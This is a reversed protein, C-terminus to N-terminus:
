ATESPSKHADNKLAFYSKVSSKMADIVTDAAALCQNSPLYALNTLSLYPHFDIDIFLNDQMSRRISVNIPGQRKAEEDTILNIKVINKNLLDIFIKVIYPEIDFNMLSGNALDAVNRFTDEAEIQNTPTFLAKHLYGLDYANLVAEAERIAEQPDLDEREEM